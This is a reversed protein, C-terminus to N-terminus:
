LQSPLTAPRPAPRRTMLRLWLSCYAIEIRSDAARRDGRASYGNDVLFQRGLYMDVCALLQGQLGEIIRTQGGQARGWTPRPAKALATKARWCRAIGRTSANILEPLSAACTPPPFGTRAAARSDDVADRRFLQGAEVIPSLFV